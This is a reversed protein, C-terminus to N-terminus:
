IIDLQTHKDVAPRVHIHRSVMELVGVVHHVHTAITAVVGHVQRKISDFVDCAEDCPLLGAKTVQHRDPLVACCCGPALFLGAMRSPIPYGVVSEAVERVRLIHRPCPRLVGGREANIALTPQRLTVTRPCVIALLTRLLM